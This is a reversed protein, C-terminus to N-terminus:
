NQDRFFEVEFEAGPTVGPIEEPCAIELTDDGHGGGGTELDLPRIRFAARGAIRCREFILDEREGIADGRKRFDEKIPIRCDIKLNITGPHLATGAAEAFVQPYETMRPQFHDCGTEVRGQILM